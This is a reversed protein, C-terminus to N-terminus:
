RSLFSGDRGSASAAFLAALYIVGTPIFGLLDVLLIYFVNVGIVLMLALIHRPSRM